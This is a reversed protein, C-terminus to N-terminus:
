RLQRIAGWAYMDLLNVAADQSENQSYSNTFGGKSQTYEFLVPKDIAAEFIGRISSIYHVYTAEGDSVGVTGDAAVCLSVCHPEGEKGDAHVLYKRGAKLDGVEDPRLDGTKLIDICHGYKRVKPSSIPNRSTVESFTEYLDVDDAIRYLSLIICEGDGFLISGRPPSLHHQASIADAEM